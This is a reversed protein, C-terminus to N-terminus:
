ESSNQRSNRVLPLGISRAPRRTKLRMGLAGRQRIHAAGKAPGPAGTMRRMPLRRDSLFGFQHREHKVNMAV